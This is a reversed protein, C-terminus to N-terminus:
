KVQNIYEGIVFYYQDSNRNIFLTDCDQKKEILDGITIFSSLYPSEYSYNMSHLFWVKISDNLTVFAFGKTAHKETVTGKIFMTKEVMTYEADEKQLVSLIKPSITFFLLIVIILGVLSIVIIPIKKKM